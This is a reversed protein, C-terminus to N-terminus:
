TSNGGETRTHVVHLRDQGHASPGLGRRPGVRPTERRSYRLKHAGDPFSRVYVQVVGDVEDSEYAVWRGDPSLAANTEHFPTAALMRPGSRDGQDRGSRARAPGLRNGAPEGPLAPIPRRPSWANPYVRARSELLETPPGSGDARSRSCSGAAVPRRSGVTIGTGDPTWTPRHPALGFSLRSLTGNADVLWLDSDDASGIASRSGTGDPALAPRSVARPTDVLRELRRRARDFWSLYHDSRPRPNGAGYVFPARRPSPSTAAGNRPRVRVADLLVEPTGRM